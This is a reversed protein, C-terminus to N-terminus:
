RPLVELNEGGWVKQKTTAFAGDVKVQQQEIWEQLRSRSYEPLLKALAQDLRLGAFDDPVAFELADGHHPNASYDRLINEPNTM